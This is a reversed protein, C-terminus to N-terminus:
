FCGAQQRQRELAKVELNWANMQPQTYGARRAADMKDMLRGLKTSLTNCQKRQAHEAPRPRAEHTDLTPRAPAVAAPAQTSPRVPATPVPLPDIPVRRTEQTSKCPLNTYTVRGQADICKNLSGAAAPLPLLAILWLSLLFAPRM